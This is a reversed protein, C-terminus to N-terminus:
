ARPPTIDGDEDVEAYGAAAMVAAPDDTDIPRPGICFRGALFGVMRDDADRRVEVGDDADLCYFAAKEPDHADCYGVDMGGLVPYRVTSESGCERCIDDLQVTAAKLAANRETANM